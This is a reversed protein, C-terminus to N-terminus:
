EEKKKDKEKKEKDQIATTDTLFVYIYLIVVGFLGAPELWYGKSILIAAIGMIGSIGYLMIAARRHGYGSAMLVHHLHQKDATMIHQKKVARRVIAFLTDFLPFGIVLLPIALTIITSGKLRGLTSLTGIMFGLFLAGSDGMFTKAPSFNYPLFGLCAGAMAALGIIAVIRAISMSDQLIIYAMCVTNILVTGSALGDIGDILNISNTIGVIWLVTFIFDAAESLQIPSSGFFVRMVQMRIGMAYMLSAIGIQVAFKIGAHLQVKDDIAGLIFTLTGGLVITPTYSFNGAFAILAAMTAVYLALGGLRPIIRNHMRRNDSPVDVVKLKFGLKISIPTLVLAIICALIFVTPIRQYM